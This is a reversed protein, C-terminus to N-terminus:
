TVRADIGQMWAFTGVAYSVIRSSKRAVTTCLSEEKSANLRVWFVRSYQLVVLSKTGMTQTAKRYALGNGEM